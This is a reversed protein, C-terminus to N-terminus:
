GTESEASVNGVANCSSAVVIDPFILFATAKHLHEPVTNFVVESVFGLTGESGVMLHALVDIPDDYDVFANISYGTTCKIRFKHKIRAAFARASVSRVQKGSVGSVLPLSGTHTSSGHIPQNWAHSDFFFGCTVLTPM